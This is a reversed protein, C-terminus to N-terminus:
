SSVRRRDMQRKGLINRDEAPRMFSLNKKRSSVRRYISGASDDLKALDSSAAAAWTFSRATARWGLPCQRARDSISESPDCVVDGPFYLAQILMSMGM